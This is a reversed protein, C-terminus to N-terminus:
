KGIPIYKGKSKDTDTLICKFGYKHIFCPRCLIGIKLIIHSAGISRFAKIRELIDIRTFKTILSVMADRVNFIKDFM